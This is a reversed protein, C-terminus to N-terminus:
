NNVEFPQLQRDRYQATKEQERSISAKNTFNPTHIHNKKSNMSCSPFFFKNIFSFRSIIFKYLFCNRILYILKSKENLAFNIKKICTSRQGIEPQVIRITIFFRLVNTNNNRYCKTKMRPRSIKTKTNVKKKIHNLSKCFYLFFSVPFCNICYQVSPLIFINIIDNKDM